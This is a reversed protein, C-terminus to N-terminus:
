GGGGACNKKLRRFAAKLRANAPPPNDLLDLVKLSDRESLVLRESQEITKRAAPLAANLIFGSLDQNSLAAARALVAKDTAKVRLDIRNSESVARPM